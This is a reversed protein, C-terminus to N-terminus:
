WRSPSDAVVHPRLQADIHLADQALVAVRRVHLLLRRLRYQLLRFHKGLHPHVCSSGRIHRRRSLDFGRAKATTRHKALVNEFVAVSTRLHSCCRKRLTISRPKAFRAKSSHMGTGDGRGSQRVEHSEGLMADAVPRCGDRQQHQQEGESGGMSALGEVLDPLARLQHAADAGAHDAKGGASLWPRQFPSSTSTQRAM